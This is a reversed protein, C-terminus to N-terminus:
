LSGLIFLAILSMSSVTNFQGPVIRGSPVFVKHFENLDRLFEAKLGGGWRQVFKVLHPVDEPESMKRQLLVKRVGEWDVTVEGDTTTSKAKALNAIRLLVQVEGEQRQARGPDNRAKQILDPLSPYLTAVEAKLVIWSLGDILAKAIGPDQESLMGPSMRNDICLNKHESQVGALLCCLFQNTHSCSLSGYRIEGPQCDALGDSGNKLKASFAAVTGSPDDEMCVAHQCALFSWGMFVIEAGLAHVETASVGYGDRNAPHIGVMGPPLSMRYALKLDILLELISDVCSVIKGGHKEAAAILSVIKSNVVPM